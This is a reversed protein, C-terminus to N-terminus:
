ASWWFAIEQPKTRAPGCPVLRAPGPHPGASLCDGAASAFQAIPQGAVTRQHEAHWRQDATLDCHALEPRGRGATLCRGTPIYIFIETGDAMQDATWLPVGAVLASKPIRIFALGAATLRLMLPHDDPDNASQDGDDDPGFGILGVTQVRLVRASLATVAHHHRVQHHHQSGLYGALGGGALLVVVGMGTVRPIWSGRTRRPGM